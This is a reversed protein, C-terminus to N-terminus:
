RAYSLHRFCTLATSEPIGQFAPHYKLITDMEGIAEKFYSLSFVSSYLVSSAFHSNESTESLKKPM